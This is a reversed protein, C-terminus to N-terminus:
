LQYSNAHRAVLGSDTIEGIRWSIASPTEGCSPSRDARAAAEDTPGPRPKVGRAALASVLRVKVPLGPKKAIGMAMAMAM